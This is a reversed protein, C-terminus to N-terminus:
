EVDVLLATSVKGLVCNINGILGIDAECPSRFPAEHRDQFALPTRGEVGHLRAEPALGEPRKEAGMVSPVRNLPETHSTLVLLCGSNVCGHGLVPDLVSVWLLSSWRAKPRDRRSCSTAAQM